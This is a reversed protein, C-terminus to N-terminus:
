TSKAPSDLQIASIIAACSAVALAVPARSTKEQPKSEMGKSRPTQYTCRSAAARKPAGDLRTRPRTRPMCPVSEPPVKALPMAVM